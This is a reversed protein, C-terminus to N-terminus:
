KKGARNLEKIFKSSKQKCSKSKHSHGKKSKKSKCKQPSVVNSLDVVWLADGFGDPVQSLRTSDPHQVSLLFETPKVPNFIMGTTESGSVQMSLFHDLSEAVGDGDTDRLFWIDGGVDEGNPADEIVYINGLADQALNDPSNLTATTAAFGLNKATTDESAALRVHAETNSHIEVSYIANESTATFYLVERGSKLQGVELDEPRGYPTAGVEDAAPRGGRVSPDVRPDATPGNLFPDNVTLPNGVEDTLPVWTAKGTRAAFQNSPENWFDAAEGDYDNVSLVFTQGVDLNGKHKMVFKYISGSNWEDVMYLTQADNSFRLGEHSLNPLSEVERIVIDEVDALPNTVEIIRGEGNWEEGTLVTGMPSWTAPDFAAYDNDWNGAIGGNDGAFLLEMRDNAIDYRSMGAGIFTEHPIFVYEGTDNYTVMDWMSAILELTDSGFSPARQVSQSADAEVESLSTLNTVQLGPPTQWPSNLENIHNPTAVASSQTLPNFYVDSGALTASAIVVAVIGVFYQQIRNFM